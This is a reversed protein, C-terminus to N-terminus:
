AVGQICGNEWVCAAHVPVRERAGGVSARSDEHTHMCSPHAVGVRGSFSAVEYMCM